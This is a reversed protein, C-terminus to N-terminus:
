EIIVMFAGQSSRDLTFTEARYSQDNRYPVPLYDFVMELSALPISLEVHWWGDVVSQGLQWDQLRWSLDVPNQRNDPDVSWDFLAGRANFILHYYRQDGGTRGRKPDLVLELSDDLFVGSQDGTDVPVARTLIRGDPPAETKVAVYLRQGDCGVWFVGERQCLRGTAHSVFGANRVAADWETEDIRGDIKPSDRMLPLAAQPADPEESRSPPSCWALVLPLIAAGAVIRRVMVGNM